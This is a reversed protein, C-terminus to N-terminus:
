TADEGGGPPPRTVCADKPDESTSKQVRELDHADLPVDESLVVDPADDAPIQVGIRGVADAPGIRRVESGDKGPTRGADDDAVVVTRRRRRQPVAEDRAQGGGADVHQVDSGDRCGQDIPRLPRQGGVPANLDRSGVVRRLVVADLHGDESAGQVTRRDLRQPLGDLRPAEVATPASPLGTVDDVCVDVVYRATEVECSGDLRHDVAPVARPGDNGLPEELAQASADRRQIALRVPGEGIVVGIGRHVLVDSVHDGLHSAGVGLHPYAEVTVGIAQAGHVLMAAHHPAIEQKQQEPQIQQVPFPGPLLQNEVDLTRLRQRLHKLRCSALGDHPLGAMRQHLLLHPFRASRDSSLQRPVDTERVLIQTEVVREVVATPEHLEERTAVARERLHDGLERPVCGRRLEADLHRLLALELDDAGGLRM